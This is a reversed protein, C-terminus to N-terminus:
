GRVCFPLALSARDAAVSPEVSPPRNLQTMRIRSARTTAATASFNPACSYKATPIKPILMTVARDPLFRRLPMIEASSPRISDVMPISAM